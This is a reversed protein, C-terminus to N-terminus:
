RGNRLAAPLASVDVDRVLEFSANKGGEENTVYTPRLFRANFMLVVDDGSLKQLSSRDIEVNIKSAGLKLPLGATAGSRNDVKVEISDGIAVDTVFVYLLDPNTLVDQFYWDSLVTPDSNIHNTLSTVISSCQFRRVDEAVLSTRREISARVFALEAPTLEGGGKLSFDYSTEIRTPNPNTAIRRLCAVNELAAVTSKRRDWLLLSGSTYGGSNLYGLNTSAYNLDVSVQKACSSLVFAVVLLAMANKM